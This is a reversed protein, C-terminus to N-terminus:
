RTRACRRVAASAPSSTPTRTRSSRRGDIRDQGIANGGGGLKRQAVGPEVRRGPTLHRVQFRRSLAEDRGRFRLALPDAALEVTSGHSPECPHALRKHRRYRQSRLALRQEFVGPGDHSLELLERVPETRGACELVTELRREAAECRIAPGPRQRRGPRAGGAARRPSRRRRRSPPAQSRRWAHALRVHRWERERPPPVASRPPRRRHPRRRSGTVQSPGPRAGDVPRSSRLGASSRPDARPPVRRRASSGISRRAPRPM